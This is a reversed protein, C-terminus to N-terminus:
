GVLRLHPSDLRELENFPPLTMCLSCCIVVRNLKRNREPNHWWTIHESSRLRRSGRISFAYNFVQKFLIFENAVCRHPEDGLLALPSPSALVHGVRQDPGASMM